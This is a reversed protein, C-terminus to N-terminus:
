AIEAAKRSAPALARKRSHARVADGFAAFLKASAADCGVWYEPHWQVGVAFAPAGAVSVAEIVGDAARAEPVIGRGPADIAQRHLSNVEIRGAGVIRALVSGAAVEVAQRIAYRADRSELPEARHDFIGPREQIEGALTGGAAVNLEQMGRCIALLPVGRELARGILPLATADRAMDYPGHREDVDGGYRAPYVNSASGTLLVGDVADLLADFDMEAGIAPVILPAVGAGDLAADVYQRQVLHCTVGDVVRIDAVLAILPKGM